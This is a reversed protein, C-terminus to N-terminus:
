LSPERERKTAAPRGLCTETTAGGDDPWSSFGRRVIPVEEGEGRRTKQGAGKLTRVFHETVGSRVPYPIRWFSASFFQLLSYSFTDLERFELYSM